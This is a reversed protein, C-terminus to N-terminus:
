CFMAVLPRVVAPVTGNSPKFGDRRRSGVTYSSDNDEGRAQKTHSDRSPSAAHAASYTRPVPLQNHTDDSCYSASAESVGFFMDHRVSHRVSHLACPTVCFKPLWATMSKMALATIFGKGMFLQVDSAYRSRDSRHDRRFRGTFTLRSLSM